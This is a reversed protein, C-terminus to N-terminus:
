AALQRLRARGEAANRNVKTYSWGSSEAIEAYSFGAAILVLTRREAPKLDALRERAELVWETQEIVDEVDAADSPIHAVSFGPESSDSAAEQSVRRDLHQARYLAWCRRKLTTTLWALPPAECDPDFKGLFALFAFQVADEADARNPANAHAVALLHEHRESYLQAAFAQVRAGRTQEPSSAYM